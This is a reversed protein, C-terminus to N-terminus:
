RPADHNFPPAGGSAGTLLLSVNSGEARIPTLLARLLHLEVVGDVDILRFPMVHSIACEMLM